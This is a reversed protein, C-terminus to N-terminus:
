INYVGTKLGSLISQKKENADSFFKKITNDIKAYQIQKAIASFSEDNLYKRSMIYCETSFKKFHDTKFYSEVDQGDVKGPLGSSHVLSWKCTDLDFLVEYKKGMSTFKCKAIIFGRAFWNSMQKFRDGITKLPNAFKWIAYLASGLSVALGVDKWTVGYRDLIDQKEPNNELDDISQGGNKARFTGDGIGKGIEDVGAGVGKGALYAGGGVGAGAVASGAGVKVANSKTAAKFFKWAANGIKKGKEFSIGEDIQSRGNKAAYYQEIMGDLLSKVQADKFICWYSSNIEISDDTIM